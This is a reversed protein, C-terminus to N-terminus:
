CKVSKCPALIQGVSYGTTLLAVARPFQLHAGIALAITGIGLFTAGFLVASIIAPVVGGFLAPLAIGIAQVVLAAFLLAPRSSRHGLWAM